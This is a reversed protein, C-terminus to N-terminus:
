TQYKEQSFLASKESHKSIVYNNRMRDQLRKMIGIRAASHWQPYRLLNGCIVGHAECHCNPHLNGCQKESQLKMIAM